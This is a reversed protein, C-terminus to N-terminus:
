AAKLEARLYDSKTEEGKEEPNKLSQYEFTAKLCQYTSRINKFLFYAYQIRILLILQELRDNFRSILYSHKSSTNHLPSSIAQLLPGYSFGRVIGTQLLGQCQVNSVHINNINGM